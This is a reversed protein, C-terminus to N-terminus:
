EEERYDDLIEELNDVRIKGAEDLREVNEVSIVKYKLFLKLTDRNFDMASEASEYKDKLEGFENVVDLTKEVMGSLVPTKTLIPTKLKSENLFDFDFMPLSAIYLVIFVLVFYQVVGVIAGLFRSFIGLIITLDFVKELIGTVFLLVKQIVLLIVFVVLFAIMEYLIINLATVGKFVGGFDFFPMTQYLWVSVTDKFLFALVVVLIFGVFAVLEKMLGRKFGLVAGFALIILIVFDVINM